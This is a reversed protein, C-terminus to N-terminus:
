PFADVPRFIAMWLRELRYGALADRLTTELLAEYFSRPRSRIAERAVLFNSEPAFPIREKIWLGHAQAFTFLALGHHHPAGDRDCLTVSGFPTEFCEGVPNNSFYRFSDCAPDKLDEILDPAGSFPNGQVFATVPALRNWNEILHHLYTHAERGVNELRLSKPQRGTKPFECPTGKHYVVPQWGKPLDGLWGLPENYHAVVIENM